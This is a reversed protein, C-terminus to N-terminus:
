FIFIAPSGLISTPSCSKPKLYDRWVVQDKPPGDLGALNHPSQFSDILKQEAFLQANVELTLHLMATCGNGGSFALLVKDEDRVVKSKGFASRFKHTCYSLFCTRCFYFLASNYIYIYIYIYINQQSYQSVLHFM